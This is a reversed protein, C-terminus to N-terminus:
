TQGGDDTQQVQGVFAAAANATVWWTHPRSPHATVSTPSHTTNFDGMAAFSCGNDKSVFVGSPTAVLLDGAGSVAVGADVPTTALNGLVDECIWHWSAGGNETLAAGFTLGALLRAPRNAQLAIGTADPLRGNARAAMPVLLLGLLWGRMATDLVRM